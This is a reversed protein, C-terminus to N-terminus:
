LVIEIVNQYPGAVFASKTLRNVDLKQAQTGEPYVHANKCQSIDLYKFASCGSILADIGARTVRICGKIKLKELGRLQLSIALLSSDSVASGCFSLDLEKLNQCRMCLVEIAVDTLACCFNLDLTELNPAASALTIISKDTLFTCDRLSLKKLNKFSNYGWYQFGKDTISTCRTLDLSELTRNAHNAFHYMVKDTVHKCYGIKLIKLNKCGIQDLDYDLDLPDDQPVNSNWGILRILVDDRVKRCNSVDLEILHKGVSPATLDMIAMANIEWNSSMKLAKIKGAMGIENIMYSFGEDTIHFCNSINIIKPRLSVFDTIQILSKDYISTNWPELDLTNFLNPTNNLLQRWRKSIIRLKMLEPLNLYEFVRILVKDPLFGNHNLISSRRGSSVSALRMRKNLPLYQFNKYSNPSSQFDNLSQSVPNLPPLSLPIQSTEDYVSARKKRAAKFDSHHSTGSKSSHGDRSNASSSQSFYTEKSDAFPSLLLANKSDHYHSSVAKPSALLSNPIGQDLVGPKVSSPSISRTFNGPKLSIPSVSRSNLKSTQSSFNWNSNFINSLNSSDVQGFILNADTLFQNSEMNFNIKESKGDAYVTLENVPSKNVLESPFEGIPLGNAPLHNVLGHFPGNESFVNTSSDVYELRERKEDILYDISLKSKSNTLKTDDIRKSATLRMEDIIFPYKECLDKLKSSNVVLLEVSSISRISASRRSNSISPRSPHKSGSNLAPDSYPGSPKNDSYPLSSKLSDDHPLNDSKSDHVLSGEEITDSELFNLFNMEGFYDYKLLRALKVEKFFSQHGHDDIVEVQGSTIFYIDAGLDNKKFVYTFPPISLPEVNLAIQHIIDQPLTSFMPLNKLFFQITHNLSPVLKREKEQMSLREQAEDRILREITPYSKLISNLTKSTLVALLTKLNAIVTATRPRNYLIGIEGFFDGSNLHAYISEGDPSTVDVTGKLIWYMSTSPDGKKIIYQKPHVNLLTLKNAIKAHFSKPAKNFLPFTSLQQLFLPPVSPVSSDVVVKEKEPALPSSNNPAFKYRPM